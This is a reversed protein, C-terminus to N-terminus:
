TLAKKCFVRIKNVDVFSIAVCKLTIVNWLLCFFRM